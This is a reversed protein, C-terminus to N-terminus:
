VWHPPATGVVVPRPQAHELYRAVAAVADHPASLAAVLLHRGDPIGAVHGHVEGTTAHRVAWVGVAQGVLPRLTPPCDAAAVPRLQWRGAVLEPPEPVGPTWAGVWLDVLRDRQLGGWRRSGEIRIGAKRAVALSADNGVLAEWDMRVLAHEAALHDRVATLASTAVGRGRGWPAVWYGIQASAGPSRAARWDRIGIMGMLVQGDSITWAAAEGALNQVFEEAHARTYPSPVTTWRRLEADQCARTIDDVDQEGPPRLLLSGAPMAHRCIMRVM